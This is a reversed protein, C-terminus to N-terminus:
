KTTQSGVRAGKDGELDKERRRDLGVTRKGVKGGEKRCTV